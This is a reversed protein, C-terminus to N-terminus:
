YRDTDFNNNNNGNRKLYGLYYIIADRIFDSRNAYGLNRAINDVKRIFEDELKFSITVTGTIELEFTQEDVKKLTTMHIMFLIHYLYMFM